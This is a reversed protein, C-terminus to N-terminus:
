VLGFRRRPKFAFVRKIRQLIGLVIPALLATYLASKFQVGLPLLPPHIWGHVLGITSVLLSGILAVFFHGMPHERYLVEQMSVVFMAVIGYGFAYLGLPGLGVLDVMLGMGFAGGLSAARPANSAIYIVALLVLDPRAGGVRLFEGAGIQIGLAVYALIFYSFWRM